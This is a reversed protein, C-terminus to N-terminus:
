RKNRRQNRKLSSPWCRSSLPKQLRTPWAKLIRRLSSRWSIPFEQRSLAASRMAGVPHAVLKIEDTQQSSFM